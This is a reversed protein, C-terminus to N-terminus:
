RTTGVFPRGASLAVWSACNMRKTRPGVPCDSILSRPAAGAVEVMTVAPSFTAACSVVPASLPVVEVEEVEVVEVVVGDVVDVVAEEVLAVVVVVVVVVAAAEVAADCPLELTPLLAEDPVNAKVPTGLQDRAVAPAV